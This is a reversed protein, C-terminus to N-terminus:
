GNPLLGSRRLVFFIEACANVDVLANHAGSFGAKNVLNCYAEILKPWKNGARGNANPIKCIPTTIQMTCMNRKSAFLDPSYGARHAFCQMIMRDFQSNHAVTTGCKSLWFLFNDMTADPTLGHEITSQKSIHHIAEAEAEVETPGPFSDVLTNVLHGAEYIVLPEPTDLDYVQFGLQLLNPQQPANFPAKFDSKGTTETDFFLALNSM